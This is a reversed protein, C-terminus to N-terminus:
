NLGTIIGGNKIIGNNTINGIVKLIKEPHAYGSSNELTDTVTLSNKLTVSSNIQVRGKINTNGDYTINDLAPYGLGSVPMGTLDKSNRITGNYINAGSGKLTIGFNNMDLTGGGLDFGGTLALDSGALVSVSPTAVTFTSEFVRGTGLTLTRTGTGTLETRRHTWTGSNSITGQVKLILGIGGENRITGNNTVNGNVILIQDPWAYGTRNFLSGGSNVTVNKCTLGTGTAVGVPGAIVVDNGAGPVFGGIWTGGVDWHGGATTSTITQSFSTQYIILFFIMDLFHIHKRSIAM